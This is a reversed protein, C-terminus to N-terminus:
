QEKYYTKMATDFYGVEKLKKLVARVTFRDAEKVIETLKNYDGKTWYEEGKVEVCYRCYAKHVEESLKEILEEKDM